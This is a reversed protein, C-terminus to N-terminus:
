SPQWCEAPLAELVGKRKSEFAVDSLAPHSASAAPDAPLGDLTVWSTCGGYADSWGVTVPEDLRHV